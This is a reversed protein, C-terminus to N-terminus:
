LAAAAAHEKLQAIIEERHPVPGILCEFPIPASTNPKYTEIWEQEAHGTDRLERFPMEGYKQLAVSLCEVDTRSFFKDDFDRIAAIKLPYGFTKFGESAYALMDASVYERKKKVVNLAFSPVPGDKMAVFHDGTIPRGYNRLHAREGYFLVKAMHFIDIDPQKSAIYVIAEIVKKYNVKFM